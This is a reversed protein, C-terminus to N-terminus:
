GKYATWQQYIQYELDSDSITSGDGAHTGSAITANTCAALAWQRSSETGRLIRQILAYDSADPSPETQAAVALAKRSMFFECRKQFDADNAIKAMQIATAM